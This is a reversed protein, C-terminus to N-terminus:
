FFIEIDKLTKLETETMKPKDETREESFAPHLSGERIESKEASEFRKRILNNSKQPSQNQCKECLHIKSCPICYDGCIGCGIEVGCGINKPKFIHFGTVGVNHHVAYDYPKGCTECIETM